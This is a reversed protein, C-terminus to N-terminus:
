GASRRAETPVGGRCDRVLTQRVVKALSEGRTDAAQRIAQYTELPVSTTVVVLRTGAPKPPRGGRAGQSM